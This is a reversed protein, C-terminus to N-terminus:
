NFQQIIDAQLFDSMNENYSKVFDETSGYWNVAKGKRVKGLVGWLRNDTAFSGMAGVVRASGYTAGGAIAVAILGLVYDSVSIAVMAFAPGFSVITGIAIFAVAGATLAATGALIQKIKEGIRRGTMESKKVVATPAGQKCHSLESLNSPRLPTKPCIFLQIEVTQSKEITVVVPYDMSINTHVPVVHVAGTEALAMSNFLLSFALSLSFISRIM